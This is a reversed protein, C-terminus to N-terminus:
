RQHGLWGMLTLLEGAFREPQALQPSHDAAEYFSLRAHRIHAAVYQATQLSYFNSQSGYALLTPVDIQPLVDRLDATVLSQWIAMLPPPDLSQLALRAARWGSTNRTYTDRARTNRSLASLRLVAEAFDTHMEDIFSQSRAADFDGYIGNPWTADTMLKPSQDIFALHSFRATGYDRICQWLTLAGMSHGVAAVREIQLHDLLNLVDRALRRLDPKPNVQLARGGHGRADPRLVCVKGKSQNFLPSILPSWAAHSATWGHLLLLPTGDGTKFLHLPEGDDAAALTHHHM